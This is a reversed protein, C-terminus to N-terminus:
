ARCGKDLWGGVVGCVCPAAEDAVAALLSGALPRSPLRHDISQTPCSLFSRLPVPTPVKCPHTRTHTIHGTLRRLFVLSLLRFSVISISLLVAREITRKKKTESRWESARGGTEEEDEEMRRRQNTFSPTTTNKPQEDQDDSSGGTERVYEIVNSAIKEGSRGWERTGM